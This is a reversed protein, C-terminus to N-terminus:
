EHGEGGHGFYIAQHRHKAAVHHSSGNDGTTETPLRSVRISASELGKLKLRNDTELFVSSVGLTGLIRGAGDYTRIDFNSGLLKEAAEITDLTRVDDANTAVKMGRKFGETEMKTAMGFGRGDQSPIHIIAGRGVAQIHQLASHLQDRCECGKDDYVQGIDCGSDVRVLIDDGKVDALSGLTFVEYYQWPDNELVIGFVNIQGGNFQYKKALIVDLENEGSFPNIDELSVKKWSVGIEPERIGTVHVLKTLHRLMVDDTEEPIAVQPYYAMGTSCHRILIHKQESQFQTTFQEFSPHERSTLKYSTEDIDLLSVSISTDNLAETPNTNVFLIQFYSSRMDATVEVPSLWVNPDGALDLPGGHFVTVGDHQILTLKELADIYNEDVAPFTDYATSYRATELKTLGPLTFESASM